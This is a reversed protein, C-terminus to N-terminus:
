NKIDSKNTFPPGSSNSKKMNKMDDTYQNLHVKIEEDPQVDKRILGKSHLEEKERKRIIIEIASEGVPTLTHDYRPFSYRYTYDILEIKRLDASQGLSLILDLVNISKKSWSETKNISFTNKHDANFTSPFKGQEYLDEDPLTIVLYGGPRVVRLWNKLGEYPDHLHELCHSSHIFDVSNDELSEMFQADGDELDWTRISKLKPFFEKYLILPDPKGGIDIGDGSFYKNLFNLDHLRRSLSKSCEKM